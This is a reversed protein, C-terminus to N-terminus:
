LCFVTTKKHMQFHLVACINSIKLGFWLSKKSIYRSESLFLGNQNWIWIFVSIMMCFGAMSALISYSDIKRRTVSSIVHPLKHPFFQIRICGFCTIVCICMFFFETLRSYRVRLQLLFWQIFFDWLFIIEFWMKQFTALRKIWQSECKKKHQFFATWM